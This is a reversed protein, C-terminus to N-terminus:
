SYIPISFGLSKFILSKTGRTYASNHLNLVYEWMGKKINADGTDWKKLVVMCALTAPLSDITPLGDSGCEGGWFGLEKQNGLIWDLCCRFLPHNNQKPDPIMALWATDYASTSVFSYPDFNSFM